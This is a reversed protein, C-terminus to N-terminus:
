LVVNERLANELLVLILVKEVMVRQLDVVFERLANELLVLILVHIKFTNTTPKRQLRTSCKGVFCPNLGNVEEGHENIHKIEYLM